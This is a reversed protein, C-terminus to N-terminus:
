SRVSPIPAECKTGMQFEGAPVRVLEPATPTPPTQQVHRTKSPTSRGTSTSLETDPQHWRCYDSGQLLSRSNCPTGDRKTGKCKRNQERSDM